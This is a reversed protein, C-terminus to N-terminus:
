HVAPSSYALITAMNEMAQAYTNTTSTVMSTSKAVSHSIERMTKTARECKPKTISDRWMRRLHQRALILRGQFPTLPVLRGPGLLPDLSSETDAISPPVVNVDSVSEDPQCDGTEEEEEEDEEGDIILGADKQSAM